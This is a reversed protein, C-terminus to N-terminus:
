IGRGLIKGRMAPIQAYSADVNDIMLAGDQPLGASLKVGSMAERCSLQGKRLPIALYFDKDFTDHRVVHGPPLERRAYVGRVLKDLYEIEDPPAIRKPNGARRM